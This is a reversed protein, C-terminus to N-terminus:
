APNDDNSDPKIYHFFPLPGDEVDLFQCIADITTLDVQKTTGHLLRNVTSRSKGVAEAIEKVSINRGLEKEKDKWFDFLTNHVTM